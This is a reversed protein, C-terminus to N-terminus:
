KLDGFIMACIKGLEVRHETYRDDAVWAGYGQQCFDIVKDLGKGNLPLYDELEGRKLIYVGDTYAIDISQEIKAWEQSQNAQIHGILASYKVQRSVIYDALNKLATIREPVPDAAYEDIVAFLNAGDLSGKKQVEGQAKRIAQMYSQEYSQIDVSAAETVNDWDGIFNVQLGFKKLFEGWIRRGGKGKINLIEYDVIRKLWAANNEDLSRKLQDLHFKWFYEDTEGEVLIAKNVFFIKASNTLDLIKALTKQSEDIIPKIIKTEGDTNNFRYVHDITIQNVFIPSHTVLIFQIDLRRRVDEIIRLYEHQMQPHLHLEPEDIIVVGNKLNFGYITFIFHLIGKEGSSLESPDIHRGNAKVFVMELAMDNSPLKNMMITVDLYKSLFRNISKLPEEEYLLELGNKLGHLYLLDCFRNGITRKVFEFVAPEGGDIYRTSQNRLRQNIQHLSRNSEVPINGHIGTYNRYSSLMVFTEHLEPWDIDDPTRFYRNYVKILEQFLKFYVLYQKIFVVETSGENEFTLQAIPGSTHDILLTVESYTQLVDSQVTEILIIDPNCYQRLFQNIIASNKLLFSLNSLDYDNLGLVLRINRDKNPSNRHPAVGWNNQNQELTLTSKLEGASPEVGSSKRMLHSEDVKIALFLAKHFVQNLVEVFNSKGSGNPGILINLSGNTEAV